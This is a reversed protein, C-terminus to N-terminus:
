AHGALAADLRPLMTESPIGFRLWTRQDPFQRVHIGALALRHAINEAQPHDVLRFLSTAGAIRGCAAALMKDLQEASNALRDRTQMLWVSDELARCGIAIAPGSVAWPGLWSRLVEAIRREAIAFGLRVGALGYTKGFSRLIISSPPHLPVLSQEAGLLDAFAEDVVLLGQRCAMDEALALLRSPEYQRGTPNNPNVVVVAKADGIEDLDAIVRVSHGLRQWCRAHERYTPGVIAVESPAILRPVIQILAQTGPAAVIRELDFAGYRQGAIRRLEHDEERLPLRSWLEASLPPIPYAFPNIGTSLDIWPQPASPYKKAIADIDGGHPEVDQHGGEQVASFLKAAGPITM